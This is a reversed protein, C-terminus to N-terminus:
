IYPKGDLTKKWSTSIEQITFSLEQRIQCIILKIRGGFLYPQTYAQVVSFLPDAISKSFIGIKDFFIMKESTYRWSIKWSWRNYCCKSVCLFEGLILYWVYEILIRNLGCPMKAMLYTVFSWTWTSLSSM